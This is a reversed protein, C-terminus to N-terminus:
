RGQLIKHNQRRPSLDRKFLMRMILGLHERIMKLVKANSTGYQRATLLAPFELIRYGQRSLKVLIEAMLLFGNSELELAEIASRRYIRFMSTYTHFKHRSAVNYLRSLNRSLFLRRGPVGCTGGDPHYPSATIMAADAARLIELMDILYIPEYTCDSDLTAVYEGNAQAMGTRIAAGVGRNIDHRLIKVNHEPPDRYKAALLEYTRDRSGDDVFILEYAVGLRAGVDNLKSFLQPLAAEEQFCPIIISLETMATASM